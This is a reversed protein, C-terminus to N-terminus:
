PCPWRRRSRSRAPRSYRSATRDSQRGRGRQFIRLPSPAFAGVDVAGDAVLGTRERGGAGRSALLDSLTHGVERLEAVGAEFRVRRSDSKPQESRTERQTLSVSLSQSESLAGIVKRATRIIKESTTQDMLGLSVCDTVKSKVAGIEASSASLELRM